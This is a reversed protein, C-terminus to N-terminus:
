KIFLSKVEVITTEKLLHLIFFYTAASVAINLLLNVGSITLLFSLLGMVVTATIIKELHRITQFNNIKKALFWTTGNYITQTTLTAVAAGMAGYPPIFVLNLLVNSIAGLIVYPLMKNQGNHAFIYNGLLYSPFIPLLTTVLIQFPLVGPLYGDGYLFSIIDKGLIIGGVTLPFAILLTATLGQEMASKAKTSDNAGVFKSILPFFATALIAPLVYLLQVIKQGASYFGIVESSKFIGLMIIDVQLMFAGVIGMGAMPLATKLISIVLSKQFFKFIKGFEKRLIIIGILTGTGASLAYTIALAESTRALYLIIFGFVTIAINTATMVLAELEMKEKARFFAVSLERLGDFFILIAVFPLLANAGEIKSFFPALFIVLVATFLLLVLKIWFTTSFYYSVEEPKKAVERTLLANVGFDAFITFFGALGLVYSFIGYEAAGLMRAAYIIVLGRFLRSGIQGASLWFVNKAVTQRTNKNTLLFDKIKKIM